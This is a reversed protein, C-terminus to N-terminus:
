GYLEWVHKERCRRCLKAANADGKDAAKEYYKVAKKIDKEVGWGHEFCQGLIREGMPIENEAAVLALQFAKEYDQNGGTGNIYCYALWATAETCGHQSSAALYEAGEVLNCGVGRGLVLCKGFHFMGQPSGRKAAERFWKVAIVTNKGVSGLGDLYVSGLADYADVIGLEAAKELYQVAEEGGDGNESNKLIYIAKLYM